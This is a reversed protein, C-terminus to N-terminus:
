MSRTFTEKALRLILASEAEGIADVSETDAHKIQSIKQELYRSGDNDFAPARSFPNCSYHDGPSDDRNQRAKNMGPAIRRRAKRERCPPILSRERSPQKNSASTEAVGVSGSSVATGAADNIPDGKAAQSRPTRQHSIAPQRQSKKTSPM